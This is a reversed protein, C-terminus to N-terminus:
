SSWLDVKSILIVQWKLENTSLYLAFSFLAVFDVANSV